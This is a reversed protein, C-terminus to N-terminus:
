GNDTLWRCNCKTLEYIVMDDDPFYGHLVAVQVFGLKEDLRRVETDSAAVEGYVRECELQDFIYSAAMRLMDRRLWRRDRGAWHAYLAGGRGTYREFMWGGLIGEDDAFTLYVATDPVRQVGLKEEFFAKSVERDRCLFWSM